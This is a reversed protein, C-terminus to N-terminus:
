KIVLTQSVPQNETEKVDAFWTVAEQVMDFRVKYEGAKVFPSIDGSLIIEEGPKVDHPLGSIRGEAVPKEDDIVHYGLNIVYKGGQGKTPWTENGTNRVKIKVNIAKNVEAKSPADVVDMEYKLVGSELPGEAATITGNQEQVGGNSSTEVPKDTKDGCGVSLISVALIVISLVVIWLSMKGIM